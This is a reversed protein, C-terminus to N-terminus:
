RLFHNSFHPLWRADTVVSSPPGQGGRVLARARVAPPRGRADLAREGPPPAPAAKMGNRELPYGLGASVGRSSLRSAASPASM